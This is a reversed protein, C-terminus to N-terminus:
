SGKTPGRAARKRPAAKVPAAAKAPKRGTRGATAATPKAARASSGTPLPASGNKEAERELVPWAYLRDISEFASPDALLQGVTEPSVAVPKGDADGVGEWDRIGRLALARTFAIQMDIKADPGGAELVERAAQRALLQGAPSVPDVQIRVGPLIDLWYPVPSSLKLM